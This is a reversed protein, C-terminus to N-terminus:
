DCVAALSLKGKIALGTDYGEYSFPLSIRAEYSLKGMEFVVTMFQGADLRNGRLIVNFHM